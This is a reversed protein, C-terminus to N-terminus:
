WNVVLVICSEKRADTLRERALRKKFIDIVNIILLSYLEESSLIAAYLLV